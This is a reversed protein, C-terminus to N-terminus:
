VSTMQRSGRSPRWVERVVAIHLLVRRWLRGVAGRVSGQNRREWVDRMVGCMAIAVGTVASAHLNGRLDEDPFLGVLVTTSWEAVLVAIAISGCVLAVVGSVVRSGTQRREPLWLVISPFVLMLLSVVWAVGAVIASGPPAHGSIVVATVHYAVIAAGVGCAGVAALASDEFPLGNEMKHPDGSLQRLWSVAHGLDDPRALRAEVGNVDIQKKRSEGGSGAHRPNIYEDYAAWLADMTALDETTIADESDCYVALDKYTALYAGLATAEHLRPAVGSRVIVNAAAQHDAQIMKVADLVSGYLAEVHARDTKLVSDTSIAATMIYRGTRSGQTEGGRSSGRDSCGCAPAAAGSPGTVRDKNVYSYLVDGSGDATTRPDPTFYAVLNALRRPFLRHYEAERGIEPVEFLMKAKSRDSNFVRQVVSLALAFGTTGRPPVILRVMRKIAQEGNGASGSGDAASGAGDILWYCLKCVVPGVVVPSYYLASAAPTTYRIRMPDCFALLARRTARDLMEDLLPESSRTNPQRMVRKMWEPRQYELDVGHWACHLNLAKALFVPAYLPVQGPLLVRERGSSM